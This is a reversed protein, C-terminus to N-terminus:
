PELSEVDRGSDLTGVGKSVAVRIAITAIENAALNGVNVERMLEEHGNPFRDIIQHPGSNKTRSYSWERDRMPRGEHTNDSRLVRPDKIIVRDNQDLPTEAM